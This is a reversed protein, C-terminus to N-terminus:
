HTTMYCRPHKEWGPGGARQGPTRLLVLTHREADGQATGPPLYLGERFPPLAAAPLGLRGAVFRVAVPANGDVAITEGALDFWALVTYSPPQYCRWRGPPPTQALVAGAMGLVLLALVALRNTRISSRM